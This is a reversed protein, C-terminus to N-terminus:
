LFGALLIHGSCHISVCAQARGSVSLVFINKRQYQLYYTAMRPLYINITRAEMYKSLKRKLEDLKAARIVEHPLSDWLKVKGQINRVM